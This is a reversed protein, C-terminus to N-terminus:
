AWWRRVADAVLEVMAVLLVLALVQTTVEAYHSYGFSHEIQFGLGGGGVYGMLASARVACEFRYLAYDSLGPGVQPVRAWLATAFRSAGIGALAAAPEPEAEEVQEAAVKAIMGGYALGLAIVGATPGLGVVRVLIVAWVVEPISRVLAAVLRALWCVLRAVPHARRWGAAFRPDVMVARSALFGLPLGILLAMVTGLVAVAITEAAGSATARLFEPDHALPWFGGLLGLDASGARSGSFADVRWLSWVAMAVIGALLIVRFSRREGAQLSASM